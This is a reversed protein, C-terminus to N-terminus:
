HLSSHVTLLAELQSIAFFPKILIHLSCIVVFSNYICFVTFIVNGM